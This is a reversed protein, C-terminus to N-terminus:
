DLPRFTTRNAGSSNAAYTHKSETVPQGTAADVITFECYRREDAGEFGTKIAVVYTVGARAEFSLGAQSRFVSSRYAVTIDQPGPTLALPQDWGKEGAAAFQRNVMLVYGVHRSALLGSDQHMSGRIWAAGPGTPPQYVSAGDPMPTTNCAALALCTLSLLLRFRSRM